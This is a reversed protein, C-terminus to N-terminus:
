EDTENAPPTSDVERKKGDLERVSKETSLQALQTAAKPQGHAVRNAQAREAKDARAKQKRFQRLNVPKSM